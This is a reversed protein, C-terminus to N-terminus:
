GGRSLSLKMRPRAGPSRWTESLEIFSAGAGRLIFNQNRPISDACGRECGREQEGGEGGCDRRGRRKARLLLVVRGRLRLLVREVASAREEGFTLVILGRRDEAVEELCVGVTEDCVKHKQPETARVDLQALERLCLLDCLAKARHLVRGEGVDVLCLKLRRLAFRARARGSWDHGWRRARLGRGGLRSRSRRRGHASRLCLRARLRSRRAGRRRRARRGDLYRAGVGVRARRAECDAASAFGFARARGATPTPVVPALRCCAIDGRGCCRRFWRWDEIWSELAGM